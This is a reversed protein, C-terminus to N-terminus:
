VNAIVLSIPLWDPVVKELQDAMFARRMTVYHPGHWRCKIENGNVKEVTMTPATRKKERVQDNVLFQEM